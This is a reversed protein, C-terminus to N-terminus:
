HYYEKITPGTKFIPALVSEWCEPCCHYNEKDIHGGEPYRFGEEKKITIELVQYSEKIWDHSHKHGDRGCIDCYFRDYIIEKIRQTVIEEHSEIM